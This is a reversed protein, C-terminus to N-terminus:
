KYLYPYDCKNCIIPQSSTKHKIIERIKNFKEGNWIKFISDKKVNGMIEERLWDSSCLIVQGNYLIYIKYFPRDCIRKRGKKGLTKIQSTNLNGGRNNLPTTIVDIDHNKWFLISEKIEKVVKTTEVSSIQMQINSKSKILKKKFYLINSVVKDYSLGKMIQEYTKKNNGNFNFWVENIGSDIIEDAMKETLLQGNTSFGIVTKPLKKRAYKILNPLRSDILPENMLFPKFQDVNYSSCEDIIKKYLKVNMKGHSVKKFTNCYPCMLCRSNCRTQTQIQVESPFDLNNIKKFPLNKKLIYM